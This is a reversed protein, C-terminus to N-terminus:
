DSEPPSSSDGGVASHVVCLRIEGSTEDAPEDVAVATCVVCVSNKSEELLKCGSGSAPLLALVILPSVTELTALMVSM